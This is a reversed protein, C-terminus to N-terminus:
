GPPRTPGERIVELFIVSGAGFLAGDLIGLITTELTPANLSTIILGLAVVISIAAAGPANKRSLHYRTEAVVSAVSSAAFAIGFAVYARRDGDAKLPLLVLGLGAVFLVGVLM